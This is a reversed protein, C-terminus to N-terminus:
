AACTVELASGSAADGQIATVTRADPDFDVGAKRVLNMPAALVWTWSRERTSDLTGMQFVIAFPEQPNRMDSDKFVRCVLM